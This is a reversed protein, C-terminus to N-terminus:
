PLDLLILDANSKAVIDLESEGAIRAQDGRSLLQGNLKASGDIMFLYASRKAAPSHRVVQSIELKSLYIAADQDIQLTQPISGDSVVPLLKGAREDAGFEKQEWRPKNGRHKPTIWLQLLHCPKTASDNHEAHLIGKGASMIQVEGPRIVGTNGLNDQHRLAGELVVTVIEMERHPHFDFGGGGAIIDDNFVRLASWNMNKPDNYDGFSFHWRADLWDHDAHYRQDSPIIDIM